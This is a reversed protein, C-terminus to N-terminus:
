NPKRRYFNCSDAWNFLKKNCFVEKNLNKEEISSIWGWYINGNFSNRLKNYIINLENSKIRKGYPPNCIIWTKEDQPISQGLFDSKKINILDEVWARKVNEMAINLINEDIDSTYITYEWNFIKNEAEQKITLFGWHNFNKFHEFAFHRWKWPAINKALLAAEIAITWSWCFPDYLPSKFKWWALLLLAVALNEKLPAEWWNIKYGRQYLAKWSSNLYLSVYNHDNILLLEEIYKEEKWFHSINELVAKHAVSQIARTSSLISDKCEVKLSLSKNSSYQSYESNKIVDFLEDFNKAEGWTIKIFVKNALRSLYNIKMVGDMDSTLFTWTQFTKETFFWLRKLEQSLLSGLWFPCTVLIEM